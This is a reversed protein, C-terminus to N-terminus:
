SYSSVKMQQAGSFVVDHLRRPFELFVLGANGSPNDYPMSMPNIPTINNNQWLSLQVIGCTVVDNSDFIHQNVWGICRVGSGDIAQFKSAPCYMLSVCMRAGLPVHCVKLDLDKWEDFRVCDSQELTVFVPKTAVAPCLSTDGSFLELRIWLLADNERLLYWLLENEKLVDLKRGHGKKHRELEKINSENQLKQEEALENFREMCCVRVRLRTDVDAIDICILDNQVRSISEQHEPPVGSLEEAAASISMGAIADDVDRSVSQSVKVLSVSIPDGPSKLAVCRICVLPVDSLLFEHSGSLKLVFSQKDYSCKNGIYKLIKDMLMSPKDRSSMRFVKFNYGLMNIAVKIDVFEEILSPLNMLLPTQPYHRYLKEVPLEARREIQIRQWLQECKSEFIKVESTRLVHKGVLHRLREEAKRKSLAIEKELITTRRVASFALKRHKRPQLCFQVIPSEYLLIGTNWTVNDSTYDSSRLKLVFQESESLGASKFFDEIMQSITMDLAVLQNIKQNNPLTCEINV